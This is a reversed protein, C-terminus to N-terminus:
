VVWVLPVPCDYLQVTRRSSTVYVVSGWWRCYYFKGGRVARNISERHKFCVMSCTYRFFFLPPPYSKKELISGLQGGGYLVTCTGSNLSALGAPQTFQKLIHALIIGLAWFLAAFPEIRSHLRNM